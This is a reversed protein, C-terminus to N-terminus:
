DAATVRTTAADRAIRVGPIKSVFDMFSNPDNAQFVGTVQQERLAASEIRISHHNYRNFEEAVEGLPRHEFVLRRQTWATATTVNAHIPKSQEHPTVTLQEGAALVLTGGAPTPMGAPTSQGGVSRTSASGRGALAQSEIAVKGEVVTVTTGSVRRDVNFQTGVARVITDGVVVDFPREREHAVQFLGEGRLLRILRQRKQFRVEIESATNLTVLSGDALVVSRQEGVSTVYRQPSALLFWAGAIAAVLVMAALRMMPLKRRSLAVGGRPRRLPNQAPHLPLVEAASERVERALAEVSTDPWELKKSRLAKTLQATRLFAAVREPSRAVWRGFEEHEAASAGSGNLLVWWHSAQETLPAMPDLENPSDKNM